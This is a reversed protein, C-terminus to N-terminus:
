GLGTPHIFMHAATIIIQKTAVQIILQQTRTVYSLTIGEGLILRPPAGGLLYESLTENM